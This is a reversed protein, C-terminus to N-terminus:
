KFSGIINYYQEYTPHSKDHTLDEYEEKFSEYCDKCIAKGLHSLHEDIITWWLWSFWQWRTEYTGDESALEEATIAKTEKKLNFTEGCSTCIYKEKM